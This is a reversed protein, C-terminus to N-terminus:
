AVSHHDTVSLCFKYTTMSDWFTSLRQYWLGARLAGKLLYRSPASYLNRNRMVNFSMVHCVNMCYIRILSLCAFLGVCQCARLCDSLCTRHVTAICLDLSCVNQSVFVLLLSNGIFLNPNKNLTVCIFVDTISFACLSLSGLVCAFFCKICIFVYVCVRLCECACVHLCVCLCVYLCMCLRSCTHFEKERHHRSNFLQEYLFEDLHRDNWRGREWLVCSPHPPFLLLLTLSKREAVDNLVRSVAVWTNIVYTREM